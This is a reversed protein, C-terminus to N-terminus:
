FQFFIQMPALLYVVSVFKSLMPVSLSVVILSPSLCCQTLEHNTNLAWGVPVTIELRYVVNLITSLIPVSLSVIILTPSLCCQSPHLDVVDSSVSFCCQPQSIFLMLQLYGVLTVTNGPLCICRCLAM